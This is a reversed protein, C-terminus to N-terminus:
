ARGTQQKYTLRRGDARRIATATREGDDVGRLNYRFEFESVYRHLHKRSVSHFTGNLGRKFIAFFGEVTNTHVDDRAYEGAKHKVTHHGGDFERGINRYPQYEDTIIRANQEVCERIAGKLEAAGTNATVRARVRGTQGNASREVVAVVPAKRDPSPRGTPYQGKFRPKGGVYTEDVEVTGGLKPGGDPAAMAWRIRHMLFLASKYSVGTMRQIQKASVGKKSACALWLAACWHRLPIASDEMVMGVRVTFQQKCGHCRWLFRANREGARNKMQVVAMDGCRPCAPEGNWRQAELFEVAAREDSCALPLAAVTESKTGAVPRNKM